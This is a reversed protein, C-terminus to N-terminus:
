KESKLFSDHSDKVVWIADIIKGQDISVFDMYLHTHNFVKLTSYGYDRSRFASYEPAPIFNNHGESCGASGTTVHVPAKPNVYPFEMSGNMVTYNYVPYFREYIHEHAWIEMDVGYKYFVSELGYKPPEGIGIRTAAKKFNCDDKDDSTCYMPRHALVIIWPHKDRNKPRTAEELDKIIWKYQEEPGTFYQPYYYFESSFCIFHIPGINVSYYLGDNDGPMTFREKYHSFNYAEEHNGVTTMYPVYAAVSEIQRMFEDGFQGDDMDMDYSFDGNHIIANYLGDQAEKQLQPLSRGEENGLDGYIAINPIWNDGDPFTKFWFIPSWGQEGGCRYKYTTNAKLDTLTVRHVYQARKAKGGDVFKKRYGVSRLNIKDVGYEVISKGFTKDPTSWTVIIDRSNDSLSLHIQEPQYRVYGYVALSFYTISLLFRYCFMM